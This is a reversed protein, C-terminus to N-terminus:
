SAKRTLYDSFDIDIKFNHSIKEPVTNTQEVIKQNPADYTIVEIESNEINFRYIRLPGPTLMYDSLIVHVTNGINGRLQRYMANTRSQDGCLIMQLNGHNSFCKDWMQQPSNGSKGHNKSWQMVGKPDTYYGEDTKPKEMPGLFMHTSIIAFRNKNNHLISDAWTLVKDPANCELHLIIFDIGEASFLQFSNANNGSHKPLSGENFYGGYWDFETFRSAPFYKQFLSSNGDSAMDHNGIAIGYPIEGHLVDMFERALTWQEKNNIDVIDGVHSVFEIKQSSKNEIIWNVQKEFVPNTLENRSEPELKTNEGFYQQTDPIVVLSFSGNPANRLENSDTVDSNKCGSTGFLLLFLIPLLTFPLHIRHMLFLM